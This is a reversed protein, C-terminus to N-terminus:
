RDLTTRAALLGPSYADFKIGLVDRFRRPSPGIAANVRGALPVPLPGLHKPLLRFDAPEVSFGSAKVALGTDVLLEEVEERRWYKMFHPPRLRRPKLRPPWSLPNRANPFSVDFVFAGGPKLTRAIETVARKVFSKGMHLFVASTIALDVSDDELPLEDASARIPHLDADPNRGFREDYEVFRRLMNESIDIACYTSWTCRRENALYLPIRGYGAGLELVTEFHSEEPVRDWLSSTKATLAALDIPGRTDGAIASRIHDEAAEDEWRRRYDSADSADARHLIGDREVLEDRRLVDAPANPAKV